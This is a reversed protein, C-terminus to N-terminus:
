VSVLNNYNELMVDIYLARQASDLCEWEEQPFDVAVDGFTLLSQSMNVPSDTMEFQKEEKLKEKLFLSYTVQQGFAIQLNLASEMLIGFCNKVFRSVVISLKTTIWSGKDLLQHFYICLDVALCEAFDLSEEQPFPPPKTCSLPVLTNPKQVFNTETRLRQSVPKDELESTYNMGSTTM